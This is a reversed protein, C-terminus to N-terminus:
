HARFVSLLWAGLALSQRPSARSKATCGSVTRKTIAVLPCCCRANLIYSILKPDLEM